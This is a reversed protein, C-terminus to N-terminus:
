EQDRIVRYLLAQLEDFSSKNACTGSSEHSDEAALEAIRMRISTVDSDELLDKIKWVPVVAMIGSNTLAEDGLHLNGWDMGLLIISTEPSLGGENWEWHGRKFRLSFPPIFVVVPSGSFGSLSRAEVLFSEQEFGRKQQLIPEEPMMAISGFRAVPTNRQKGDHAIFRGIFFVDDGVGINREEFVSKDKFYDEYKFTGFRFQSPSIALPMIAVDDGSPHHTWLDQTVAIVEAGGEHTNIRLAGANVAVHSNTVVYTLFSPLPGEPLPMSVLFGTGGARRTAQADEASPYLYVVCELLADPIRPM